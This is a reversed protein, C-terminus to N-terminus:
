MNQYCYDLASIGVDQNADGVHLKMADSMQHEIGDCQSCNWQRHTSLAQRAYGVGAACKMGVPILGDSDSTAGANM